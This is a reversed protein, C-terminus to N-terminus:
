YATPEDPTHILYECEPNYEFWTKYYPLVKDAIPVKRIGYETKSSIVDFYQQDLHVNEKKLDLFESIRVGNYLLMLIIQYYKDDKPESIREIEEKEFTNRDYKDPNRDKYQVVDVFTSYDMNCIDNKIAFDYLQNFLVKIKRLTPYNKGCTGIITQLDVLKLDKFVM